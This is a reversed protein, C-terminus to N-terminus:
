EAPPRWEILAKMAGVVEQEVAPGVSNTEEYHDGEPESVYPANPDLEYNFSPVIYGIMDEALGAVLAVEIGDQALIMDRLYPPPPATALDPPNPNDDSTISQGWSESGDYGGIFLEPHLEGPATILGVNGLELYTVRSDIYPYNGPGIPQTDDYGLLPREFVGVAGAVHYYTNEVTVAIPGTRFALGPDAVDIALEASTIAELAVRALANGTMEAKERSHGELPEGALGIPRARSPGIQGGLAGNVFIAEGGIGEMAPIGLAPHEPVGAEVGDRLWHIYDASVENNDSGTYEPHAAWNILSAVTRDPEDTAAFRIVTLTPDLIAPDRVDGVYPLCSGDEDLTKQQAVTMTVPELRSVAETVAEITRERVLRQYAPDLGTVLEARGWLGMTDPTEHIHLACVILHDIELGPDLLERTADIDTSFWGIADVAALAVRTQGVEFVIARVFIDDHIATAVRGNSFGALWTADFEGNDNVDVFPEGRDFHRDGDEDTWETEVLRPNIEARAAGVRLPAGPSDECGPGPCFHDIFDTEPEAEDGCAAAVLAALVLLQFATRDRM